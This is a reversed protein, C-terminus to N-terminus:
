NKAVVGMFIVGKQREVFIYRLNANVIFLYCEYDVIFAGFFPLSRGLTLWFMWAVHCINNHYGQQWVSMQTCPKQEM